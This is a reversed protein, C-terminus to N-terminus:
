PGGPSVKGDDPHPWWRWGGPPLDAPLEIGAFASRHLAEVHNGVAAVMRKVQHYRGETLVLRLAREGRAEAAVARVPVPDDRLVVGERLTQCQAADVPRACQVEYVKAVHHKPSTWRHNLAGDDTLLLVGTTDQDLRGIPQVGRRRLPAPLLGLVSPWAGPRTSCETGAPKHLLVLAREHVPWDVGDVTVVLGAAALERDGEEVVEGGVRVRGQALLAQVERRSGFGQSFLIQALPQAAAPSRRSPV